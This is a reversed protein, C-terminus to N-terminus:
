SDKGDCTPPHMPGEPPLFGLHHVVHLCLHLASCHTLQLWRGGCCAEGSAVGSRRFVKGPRSRPSLVTGGGSPASVQCSGEWRARGQPGKGPDPRACAPTAAGGGLLPAGRGPNWTNAPARGPAGRDPASRPASSPSPQAARGQEGGARRGRGWREGAPPQLGRADPGARPPRAASGRRRRSLRARGSVVHLWSGGARSPPPAAARAARPPLPRAPGPGRRGPHRGSPGTSRSCHRPQAPRLVPLGPVGEALVRLTALGLPAAERDQLHGPAPVRLSGPSLSAGRGRGQARGARRDGGASRGRGM